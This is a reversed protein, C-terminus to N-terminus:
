ISNRSRGARWQTPSGKPVDPQEMFGFRLEARTLGDDIHAVRIRDDDPAHPTETMEVAVLLVQQHM